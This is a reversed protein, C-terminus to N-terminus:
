TSDTTPRNGYIKLFQGFAMLANDITKMNRIKEIVSTDNYLSYYIEYFYEKYNSYKNNIDKENDKKHWCFARYVHQDYIPFSLPKAIHKIFINWIGNGNPFCDNLIEDFQFETIENNRFDNIKNMKSLVKYVRPNKSDQNKGSKIMESLYKPDKWRLLKKINNETLLNNLNLEVFYDIEQQTNEDLIKYHYFSNWFPVFLKSQHLNFNSFETQKLIYM